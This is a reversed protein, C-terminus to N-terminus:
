KPESSRAMKQLYLNRGTEIMAQKREHYANISVPTAARNPSPSSSSTVPNPSSQVLRSRSPSSSSSATSSATPKALKSATNTRNDNSPAAAPRGSLPSPPVSSSPAPSSSSGHHLPPLPVSPPPAARAGVHPSWSLRNEIINDITEQVDRTVLLDALAVSEPIDPFLARVQELHERHVSLDRQDLHGIGPDQGRVVEVSLSPLWALWSPSSFSWVSQSEPQNRRQMEEHRAPAESASASARSPSMQPQTQTRSPSSGIPHQSLHRSTVGSSSADPNAISSPAAPTRRPSVDRGVSEVKRARPPTKPEGISSSSSSPTINSSPSADSSWSSSSEVSSNSVVRVHNGHAGAAESPQSGQIISGKPLVTHNADISSRHRAGQNGHRHQRPQSAVQAPAQSILAYRCTPCNHNHELWSRLCTTHFIHGCPLRLASTMPDRCIACNDNLAALEEPGLPKYLNAIHNSLQRYNQYAIFKTRLSVIIVVLRIVILIDFFINMSVGHLHLITAYYILSVMLIMSKSFLDTYYSYSGRHEWSGGFRTMDIYYIFYKILAGTAVVSLSFCESVVLFLQDKTFDDRVHMAWSFVTIDVFMLLSLLTVIKGHIWWAANPTYTILIKFRNRSLDCLLRMSAMVFLWGGWKLVVDLRPDLIASVALLNFVM